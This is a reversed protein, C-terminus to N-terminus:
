CNGELLCPCVEITQNLTLVIQHDCFLGHQIKLPPTVNTWLMLRVLLDSVKEKFIWWHEMKADVMRPLSSADDATISRALSTFHPPQHHSSTSTSSWETAIHWRQQLHHFSPSLFLHFLPPSPSPHAAVTVARCALLHQLCPSRRTWRRWRSTYSAWQMGTTKKMMLNCNRCWCWWLIAMAVTRQWISLWWGKHWQVMLGTM